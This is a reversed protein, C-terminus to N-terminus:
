VVIAAANMKASFFRFLCQKKGIRHMVSKELLPRKTVASIRECLKRAVQFRYQNLTRLLSITIVCGLQMANSPDGLGICSSRKGQRNVSLIM